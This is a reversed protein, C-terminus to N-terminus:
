LSLVQIPSAIWFRAVRPLRGWQRVTINKTLFFVQKRGTPSILRTGFVTRWLRRLGTKWVQCRVGSVETGEGKVRRGEGQMQYWGTGQEMGELERIKVDNREYIGKIEPLDHLLIKFILDKRQETGLSLVQAVLVDNFRDVTLGPFGDAEGFILRCCNFDDGMVQRRYNLAYRTRRQWFDDDFKDNTNTSIIRVRIKSNDNVFGSGVYKGKPSLVDVIDGNQYTGEVKTVEDRFVWVHGTKIFKEGKATIYFKPYNRM